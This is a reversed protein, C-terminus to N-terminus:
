RCTVNNRDISRGVVAGGAAGIITGLTKSDGPAIINGLVGGAVGGVILGTTGDSRRCYYRDDTGRYIRDNNHLRYVEYNREDERHYYRAADYRRQGPEYHNHDYHRWESRPPRDREYDRRDEQRDRQREDQAFISVQPVTIVGSILLAALATQIQKVRGM